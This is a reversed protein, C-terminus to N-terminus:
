CIECEMAWKWDEGVGFRILSLILGWNVEFGWNRGVRRM